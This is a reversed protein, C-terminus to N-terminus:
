EPEIAALAAHARDAGKFRFRKFRTGDGYTVTLESIETTGYGYKGKGQMTVQSSRIESRPIACGGQTAILKDVLSPNGPEPGQGALREAPLSRIFAVRESTVVLSGEGEDGGTWLRKLWSGDNSFCYVAPQSFVRILEDM